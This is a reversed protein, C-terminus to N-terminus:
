SSRNCHDLMGAEIRLFGVGLSKKNLQGFLPLVISDEDIAFRTPEIKELPQCNLEQLHSKADFLKNAMKINEAFPVPQYETVYSTAKLWSAIFKLNPVTTSLCAIQILSTLPLKSNHDLVKAVLLELQHGKREHGLYHIEDVVIIGLGSLKGDAILKKIFNNAEEIVTLNVLELLFVESISLM